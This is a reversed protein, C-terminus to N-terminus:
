SSLDLAKLVAPIKKNLTFFGKTTHPWCLADYPRRIQVLNIGKESLSNRVRTIMDAAPGVTPHPTAVWRIDCAVAWDCVDRFAQDDALRTPPIGFAKEARALGDTLAGDAFSRAKDGVSLPSRNKTTGAGAIASPPSPLPLSESHCDDETLLLAFPECKPLPDSTPIPHAQGISDEMLPAAQSSLQGVPNFRGNTFRAINSARALYTRGKSHLGAVWRWSLTNSAPDGDLLHRYFFDADLQWPLRLTFIWISAFWMRAHNHLYGTQVLERAWADVCDIGTKGEVASTLRDQLAPDSQLKETQDAVDDRYRHWVVPHHELWGKFYTRWFVEQVFKRASLFSHAGLTATLVEQELILRHRLWPSLGSVNKHNGPGNDANRTAAYTRGAFPLFAHMRELGDQRQPRWTILDEPDAQLFSLQTMSPGRPPNEAAKQMARLLLDRSGLRAGVKPAM